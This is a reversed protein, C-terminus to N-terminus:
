RTALEAVRNHNGWKGLREKNRFCRIRNCDSYFKAIEYTNDTSADDLIILEWDEFRQAKVSEIADKIFLQAECAPILVSVKPIGTYSKHVLNTSVRPPYPFFSWNPFTIKQIKIRNSGSIMKFTKLCKTVSIGSLRFFKLAQSFNGRKTHGVIVMILEKIAIQEAIKRERIPLPNMSDKLLETFWVLSEKLGIDHALMFMLTQKEHHRYWWLGHPMLLVPFEMAVSLSMKVDSSHFRTDFGGISRFAETRFITGSPGESMMSNQGSVHLRWAELPSFLKPAVWPWPNHSIGLGATPFAEMLTVMMELCHPYMIDDGHFFKIYKGKALAAGRNHTAFQGLNQDNAVLRIRKGDEFSSAIEPTTDTSHDDVIILEWDTYSQALVSQISAKIYKEYNYVPIVVSVAPSSTISIKLSM